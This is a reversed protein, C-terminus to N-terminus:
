REIEGRRMCSETLGMIFPGTGKYDDAVIPESLYYAYSGDRYPTGGLGAVKCIGSLHFRGDSGFSVRERILADLAREGAQAFEGASP